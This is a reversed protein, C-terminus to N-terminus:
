TAIFMKLKKRTAINIMHKTGLSKEDWLAILADAMESMKENRIYGAKKGLKDWEAKIVTLPINNEVAYREGLKDAGAAGGSIVETINWSCRKIAWLLLQYNHINRSGAIITKM